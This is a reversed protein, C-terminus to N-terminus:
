DCEKTRASQCYSPGETSIIYGLYSVSPLLSACKEKKLRMGATKLRLLVQALNHLHERETAGTVLIDDIYACVGSIGQLVNEM